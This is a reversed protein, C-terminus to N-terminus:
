RAAKLKIIAEAIDGRTERLARVAAEREAGTQEMVLNVDEESPELELKREIEEGVIQYSRQGAVETLTVKPNSIMIERDTFRILVERVGDLERAKIGMQRMVREMQRRDIRRFM